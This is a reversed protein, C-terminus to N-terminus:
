FFTSHLSTTSISQLFFFCLLISHLLRNSLKHSTKNGTSFLFLSYLIKATMKRIMDARLIAVCLMFHVIPMYIFAYPCKHNKIHFFLWSKKRETTNLLHTYYFHQFLPIVLNEYLRLQKQDLCFSFHTCVSTSLQYLSQSKLIKNDFADARTVPHYLYVSANIVFFTNIGNCM